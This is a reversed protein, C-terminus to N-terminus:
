CIFIDFMYILRHDYKKNKYVFMKLSQTVTKTIYTKNSNGHLDLYFM